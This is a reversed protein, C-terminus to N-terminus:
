AAGACKEKEKNEREKRDVERRVAWGQVAMVCIEWAMVLATGGMAVTFVFMGMLGRGEMVHVIDKASAMFVIGGSILCFSSLLETPPRSPYTSTPPSIYLTIYTLLRSLSFCSLLHGWQAHITTSLPSSQHHSSMLLGLLLIVLSPLPNTSIPQPRNPPPPPFTSSPTETAQHPPHIISSPAPRRSNIVSTNLWKRVTTSEVLMGCLGSGFFLVSISVHELDQASWAGGWSALHELFVNTSGYLFIVLSEVFEASPMSMTMGAARKHPPPRVNWAWGLDAFCGMWRGLTLLGYWFFIGGKIFHAVGNFVNHGRFIGGYVIGGTVLALFGLILSIWDIFAYLFKLTKLLGSPLRTPIRRRVAKGMITRLPLCFPRVPHDNPEDDSYEYEPKEFDNWLGDSDTLPYNHSGHAPPWRTCLSCTGMRCHDAYITRGRQATDTMPSSLFAAREEPLAKAASLNSQKSRKAHFVLMGIVAQVMMIWSVVWGIAHHANNEYLDPTRTNFITGFTVGLGNSVIPLIFFWALVMLVIHAMMIESHQSLGAYNPIDYLSDSPQKSSSSPSSANSPTGAETTTAGRHSEVGGRQAAHGSTGRLLLLLLAVLVITQTRIM